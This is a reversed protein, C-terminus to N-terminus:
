AGYICLLTLCVELVFSPLVAPDDLLAFVDLLLEGRRWAEVMMTAPSFVFAVRYGEEQQGLLGFDSLAIDPSPLLYVPAPVPCM